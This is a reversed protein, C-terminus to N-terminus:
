LGFTTPELGAGAVLVSEEDNKSPSDKKQEGCINSFYSTLVFFSNLNETLYERKKVDVYLGKPFLLNQLKVTTDYDSSNV